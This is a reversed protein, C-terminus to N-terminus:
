EGVGNGLQSLECVMVTFKCCRFQLYQLLRQCHRGGIFFFDSKRLPEAHTEVRAAEILRTQCLVQANARVLHAVPCVASMEGPSFRDPLDLPEETLIEHRTGV